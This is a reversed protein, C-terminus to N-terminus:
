NLYVSGLFRPISISICFHLYLFPSLSISISFYLYPFLTLSIFIFISFYLYPFVSHLVFTPNSALVEQDLNFTSIVELNLATKSKLKQKQEPTHSPEVKKHGSDIAPYNSWRFQPHDFLKPAMRPGSFVMM